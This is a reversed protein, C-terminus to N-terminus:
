LTGRRYTEEVDKMAVRYYLGALEDSIDQVLLDGVEVPDFSEPNYDNYSALIKYDLAKALEPTVLVAMREEAPTEFVELKVKSRAVKFSLEKGDKPSTLRNRLQVYNELYEGTESGIFYNKTARKKMKHYVNDDWFFGEPNEGRDRVIKGERIRLTPHVDM